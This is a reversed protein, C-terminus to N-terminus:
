KNLTARIAATYQRMLKSLEDNAIVEVMGKMLRPAPVHAVTTSRFSLVSGSGEEAIKWSGSSEMDGSGGSQPPLWTVTRVAEDVTYVADYQVNLKIPGVGKEAMFWRWRGDAYQEIKLLGPFHSASREIDAVLAFADEASSSVRLETDFQVSVDIMAASLLLDGACRPDGSRAPVSAALMQFSMFVGDM